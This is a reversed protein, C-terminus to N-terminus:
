LHFQTGSPFSERLTVSSGIVPLPLVLIGTTVRLNPIKTIVSKIGNRYPLYM